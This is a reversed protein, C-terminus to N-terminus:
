GRLQTILADLEAQTEAQCLHRRLGKSESEDDPGEPGNNGGAYILLTASEKRRLRLYEPAPGSWGRGVESQCALDPANLRKLWSHYTKEDLTKRAQVYTSPDIMKQYHYEAQIQRMEHDFRLFLSFATQYQPPLEAMAPPMLSDFIPPLFGYKALFDQRDMRQFYELSELNEHAQDPKLACGPLPLLLCLFVFGKLLPSSLHKKM